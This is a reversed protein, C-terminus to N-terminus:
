AQAPHSKKFALAKLVGMLKEVQLAEDLEDREEVSFHGQRSMELLYDMRQEAEESLQYAMVQALSPSSLLFEYTEYAVSVQRVAM